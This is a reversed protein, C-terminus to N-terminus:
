YALKKDVGPQIRCLIDAIREGSYGDGYMEDRSYKGHRCQDRIAEEIKESEYPVHVVNKGCERGEQRSGLNVAPVGLFSAERIAVSSNGVLCDCHNILRLFDVSSINKFFHMGEDRHHERYMRIAHAIGDTGADMNPWFWIVPVPQRRVAELTARTQAVAQDHEQTVAHMQVVLYPKSLDPRAGVGHYQDYITQDWRPLEAAERAIDISPCGTVIVAEEREGMRIVRERAKETSVLHLDSLKTIAHRVKEDISGTVEGGQIHALPIHMYSAAVATSMTEFRDAVTVVMDPRINDFVTALEMIGVGTTKAMTLLSDGGVVNFVRAAVELGDREVYETIDGYRDLLASAAIILQLECGEKKNLALLVNRIRSYSPRATVVVAIRKRKRTKTM